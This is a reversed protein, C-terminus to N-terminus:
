RSLIGDPNQMPLKTALVDMQCQLGYLAELCCALDIHSSVVVHVIVTNGIVLCGESDTHNWNERFAIGDQWWHGIWVEAKTPNNCLKQAGSPLYGEPSSNLTGRREWAYKGQHCSARQQGSRTELWWVSRDYLCPADWISLRNLPLFGSFNLGLQVEPHQSLCRPNSHSSWYLCPPVPCLVTKVRGRMILDCIWATQRLMWFMCCPRKLINSKLVVRSRLHRTSTHQMLSTGKWHLWDRM